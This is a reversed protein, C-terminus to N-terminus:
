PASDGEREWRTEIYNLPFFGAAMVTRSHLSLLGELYVPLDLSFRDSLSIWSGLCCRLLQLCWLLQSFHSCLHQILSHNRAICCWSLHWAATWSKNTLSGLKALKASLAAAWQTWVVDIKWRRDCEFIVLKFCFVNRLFRGLALYSLIGSEWSFVFWLMMTEEM